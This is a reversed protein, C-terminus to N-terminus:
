LSKLTLDPVTIAPELRGSLFHTESDVEHRGVELVYGAHFEM